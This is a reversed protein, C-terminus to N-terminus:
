RAPLPEISAVLSSSMDGLRLKTTFTGPTTLLRQLVVDRESDQLALQEPLQVGLQPRGEIKRQLLHMAFEACSQGVCVRFSDHAQVATASSGNVGRVEVRMGHTEGVFRDALWVLPESFDALFQSFAENRWWARPIVQVPCLGADSGGVAAKLM